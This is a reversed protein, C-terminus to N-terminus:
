PVGHHGRVISRLVSSGDKLGCAASVTVCLALIFHNKQRKSIAPM